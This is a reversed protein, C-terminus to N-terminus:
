TDFDFFYVRDADSDYVAISFNYSYRNLLESDDALDKSESHRDKFMYYGNTIKPIHAEEAAAYSYTIGDLEGGYMIIDPNESLCKKEM